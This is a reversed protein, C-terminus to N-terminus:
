AALGALVDGFRSATTAWGSLVARRERAAQRLQRRLDADGHWRRLATAVAVPDDPPVLIGPRTSNSDYGLAEPVGGVETAIVPIGRALAETVVMAYTEARSCLVVLDAAAYTAELEAGVRTGVFRMRDAVGGRVAERELRDVFGPDLDTAGACICRWALDKVEALATVLVDHGKARTVAAVCLLEGGGPTGPALEAADTGPEVIHIRDPELAYQEVLWNKTWASTAVVGAAAALVAGEIARTAAVDDSGQALPMHVLVLLVLRRAFSPVDAAASAILGDIVVVAGDALGTLVGILANVAEADPRPWTGSLPHEEVSWGNAVLGDCLRRDYVNGGSPRASDDISDPVIVHVANM